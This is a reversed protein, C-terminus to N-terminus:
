GHAALWAAVAARTELAVTGGRRWRGLSGANSLGCARAISPASHGEAIAHELINLLPDRAAPEFTAGCHECRM